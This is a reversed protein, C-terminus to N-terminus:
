KREDETVYKSLMLGQAVAFVLLLGTAGYVKFNVWTPESYNFAVYLNLVGMVAFFGTWSWTLKSWVAEPLELQKGMVHRLLNKKFFLLGGALVVSFLWYLVTPKVLIFRKDHLLITAGGFVVIIVLSVWLMTEVKRYKFYSFAVQVITAVIAAGTAVYIDFLKYAAFFVILPFFDFLLKM